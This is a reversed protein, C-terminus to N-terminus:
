SCCLNRSFCCIRIPELRAVLEHCRLFSMLETGATASVAYRDCARLACIANFVIVSAIWLLPAAIPLAILWNRVPLYTVDGEFCVKFAFMWVRMAIRWARVAAVCVFRGIDALCGDRM